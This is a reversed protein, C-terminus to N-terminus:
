KVRFAKARQLNQLFEKIDSKNFLVHVVKIPKEMTKM